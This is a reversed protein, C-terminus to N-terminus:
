RRATIQILAEILNQIDKLTTQETTCYLASQGLEPFTGSLDKGGFIGRALLEENIQGITKGTKDFNLVIEKFPTSSFPLSVGPIEAAKKCLYHIKQILHDGLEEMGSPGMLGLYVAATIAWLGTETGYFEKANERSGHSTRFNIARGYAIEGPQSGPCAGYLYTPFELIFRQEDRTAIYGACGGGYHMHIGLPQIDGCVIDAGYHVPAELVGLSIPDASVVFLANVSKALTSIKEGNEEIFGLYSPNEIFVAATNHSLKKSLDNLDLLGTAIEHKIFTFDCVGKCYEQIQSVIEPNMTSPILVEKKQTIRCAMRLASATAQAGDYLTFSVVGMDLLEGMQSTFEFIAQLKGHDAYTEGCYATLFEARGNIEDCIAPVYHDWCGGGLFSSVERCSINKNMVSVMHKKLEQESLLPEPLPMEGRFRLEEPIVTLLEEINKVGIDKLMQERIATASNPLYPHSENKLNKMM